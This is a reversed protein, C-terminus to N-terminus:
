SDHAGPSVIRLASHPNRFYTERILPDKKRVGFKADRM